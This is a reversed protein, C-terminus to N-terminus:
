GRPRGRRAAQKQSEVHRDVWAEVDKERWCLRKRGPIRVRPPVAQPNRHVDSRLTAPSIGLLNAVQEATLLPEM